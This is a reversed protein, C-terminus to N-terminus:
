NLINTVAEPILKILDQQSATQKNGYKQYYMDATMGHFYTGCIMAKYVDNTQALISVLIGSLVDGSGATALNENGTSNIYIRGDTLCCFTTESKMVVNVKHERAFGKVTEFRNLEIQEPSIKSLRSFEGIHPTLIIESKSNRNLLVSTDEALLSLGDADIILNKDCNKIVEILFNKTDTNLSLGPGILVADSKDIRKKVKDFSKAAISGDDTEDLETKIVEYLKKSFHASISKPIAAIVAGAGSKLASFSSMIVAGSLGESGGIILAKGNSYKYSSKKRKPFINKVDGFEVFYKKYSNHMELLEDTIGIPAIYIDGSSDKGEGYLLETKIAGMTITLDASVIPNIQEGSMLGSPVDIAVVKLKKHKLNNIFNVAHDFETSLKGKIGSGLMADIILVKSQKKVSKEFDGFSIFSVLDSNLNMLINYNTLADSSLASDSVNVVKVGIGNIAMERAIVFGDGANNGKGCLVYIERELIDTIRNCIIDFANKGANEMLVLSPIRGLSIISKEAERIEDFTFAPKM